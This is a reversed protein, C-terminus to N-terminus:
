IHQTLIPEQNGDWPQYKKMVAQFLDSDLFYNLWNQLSPYPSQDFWAKDVMAFQRIFPFLAIDAINIQKGFFFESNILRQNLMQLYPKLKELYYVPDQKASSQPYKYNDLLPKFEYDNIQILKKAASLNKPEHWGKPDSQLLAWDMIDLSEDIISGDELILVPVTGKPSAEILGQPKNKLEVERIRVTVGSYYLTLRARIAYPCRRFTYLIPYNM